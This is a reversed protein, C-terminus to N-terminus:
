DWKKIGRINKKIRRAGAGSKMGRLIIKTPEPISPDALLKKISWNKKSHGGGNPAKKILAAIKHNIWQPVLRQINPDYKKDSHEGKHCPFCLVQLDSPLVDFISKYALHHVHLSSKRGCKECAPHSRLKNLRLLRWHDSQLYIERYWGRYSLGSKLLESELKEKASMSQQRTPLTVRNGFTPRCSAPM